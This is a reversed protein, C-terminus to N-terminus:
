IWEETVHIIQSSKIPPLVAEATLPGLSNTVISRRFTSPAAVDPRNASWQAAAKHDGIHGFTLRVQTILRCFCRNGALGRTAAILTETPIGGCKNSESISKRHWVVERSAVLSSCRISVRKLL